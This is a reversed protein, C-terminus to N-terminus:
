PLPSDGKGPVTKEFAELVKSRLARYKRFNVIFLYSCIGIFAVGIFSYQSSFYAFEYRMLVPTQAISFSTLFLYLSSKILADRMLMPAALYSSQKENQADSDGEKIDKGEEEIDQGDQKIGTGKEESAVISQVKEEFLEDVRAAKFYLVASYFVLLLFLTFAALMLRELAIVDDLMLM